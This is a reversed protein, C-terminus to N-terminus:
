AKRLDNQIQKVFIGSADGGGVAAVTSIKIVIELM